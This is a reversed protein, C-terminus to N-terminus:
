FKQINVFNYINLDLYNKIFNLKINRVNKKLKGGLKFNLNLKSYFQKNKLIIKIM